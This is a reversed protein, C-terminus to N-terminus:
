DIPLGTVTALEQHYARLLPETRGLTLRFGPPAHSLSRFAERAVRYDENRVIDLVIDHMQGILDDSAEAADSRRYTAGLTVSDGVSQGPFVRFTAVVPTEGDFAHTYSIITNPFLYHVAQYGDGPWEDEPKGAIELFDDGPGSYRHHRGYHDFITVYSLLNRNLSNRHLAPVHYNECFTDLAIKWNSEVEFRDLRVRELKELELAACLPAIPGLYGEVDLKAEPKGCVFLMGHWEEAPLEVLRLADRDIGEFAAAHPIGALRGDLEFSWGHFPCTLMRGPDCSEVLRAGRHPCLNLFARVRRDRDRVILIPPGAEDFLLRDGPEPVDGSFGALLPLEAFVSAREAEFRAPDTYFHAPITSPAGDLDSTRPERVHEVIRRQMTRWETLLEPHTSLFASRARAVAPGHQRNM